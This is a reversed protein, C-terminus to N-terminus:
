EPPLTMKIVSDGTRVTGATVVRACVGRLHLMRGEDSSVWRLADRGFRAVFKACGTHPLETIEIVADGVRLMTGAPLNDDSLDLDVYLQDGALARRDADGALLEVVRINMINLERLPHPSRDPTDKAPRRPWSDGVLGLGPELRGMDLVERQGLDPRRVILDLSGSDRPSAVVHGLGADLEDITAHAVTGDM